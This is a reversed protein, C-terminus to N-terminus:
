LVSVHTSSNAGCSEGKGKGQQRGEPSLKVHGHCRSPWAWDGIPELRVGLSLSGRGRGRRRGGRLVLQGEQSVEVLFLPVVGGSDGHCGSCEQNGRFCRRGGGLRCFIAPLPGRRWFQVGGGGGENELLNVDVDVRPTGNRPHGTGSRSRHWDDTEESDRARPVADASVHVAEQGVEKDDGGPAEGLFVARLEHPRQVFGNKGVEARVTVVDPLSHQGDLYAPFARNVPKVEVLQTVEQFDSEGEGFQDGRCSTENAVDGDM